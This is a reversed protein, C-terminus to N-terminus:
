EGPQYLALMAGAPDRIVAFSTKRTVVEGGLELTRAVSADLDAVTVYVLWVPPIDANMERAHCVGAVAAGGEAKMSYDDYDGMSLGEPEWGVVASYFDRLGEADDVTLDVWGVTGVTKNQESM